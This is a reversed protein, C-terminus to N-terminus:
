LSIKRGGDAVQADYFVDQGLSNSSEMSLQQSIEPELSEDNPLFRFFILYFLLFVLFVESIVALWTFFKISWNGSTFYGSTKFM